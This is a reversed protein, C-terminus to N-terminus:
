RGWRMNAVKALAAIPRGCPEHYVGNQNHRDDRLAVEVTKQDRRIPLRCGKCWPGREAGGFTADFAM